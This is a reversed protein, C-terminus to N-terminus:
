SRSAESDTKEEAMLNQLIMPWVQEFGPMRGLRLQQGISLMSGKRVDTWHEFMYALEVKRVDEFAVSFASFVEHTVNDVTLSKTIHQFARDKLEQLGIKDALRYVSKASPPQPRGPNCHEWEVMWERRTRHGSGTSIASLSFSHNHQSELHAAPTSPVSTSHSVQPLSSLSPSLFSSSLPAFVITNTYLYYLIARYTTYAVDRIVVKTKQPGPLGRPTCPHTPNQRANRGEGETDDSDRPSHTGTTTDDTSTSVPNTSPPPDPHAPRYDELVMDEHAESDPHVYSGVDSVVSADDSEAADADITSEAFGSSFMADFYDVRQLLKRAAYIRRVPAEDLLGGISDLFDKSVFYRPVSPVPLPSTAESTITCIIIFADQSKVATAQYFVLDRRAFQAWGWNQAGPYYFAHDHAEKHNYQMTKSVNRIEFGFNFLGDRSWKGNIAAEKEATTPECWLYLSVFTQGDTGINGSNAYFLIQWRGDGFRPSKIVKSKAEGKSSDFINALGRLTWEFRITTNEKADCDKLTGTNLHSISM